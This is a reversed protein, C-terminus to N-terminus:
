QPEATDRNGTYLYIIATGLLMAPLIILGAEPGFAGGTM